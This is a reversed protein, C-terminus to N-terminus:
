DTSDATKEPELVLSFVFAGIEKIPPYLVSNEITESRVVRLSQNAREFFILLAGLIVAVKVLGFIGGAIKNLLGLMTIDAIKTLLKGLFHVAFVILVFTIIFATIKIYRIEWNVRQSLYDAALYSFHIAGYLGAILAVLSAIEIFLGNRLGKYLGYALLLALVIDLIGMLKNKDFILSQNTGKRIM